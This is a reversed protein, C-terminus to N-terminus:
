QFINIGCLSPLKPVLKSGKYLTRGLIKQSTPPRFRDKENNVFQLQKSLKYPCIPNDRSLIFYGSLSDGSNRESEILNENCIAVELM